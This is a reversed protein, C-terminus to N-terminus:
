PGARCRLSPLRVCVVALACGIGAFAPVAGLMGAQPARERIASKRNDSFYHNGSLMTRAALVSSEAYEAVERATFWDCRANDFRQASREPRRRSRFASAAFADRGRQSVREAHVLM